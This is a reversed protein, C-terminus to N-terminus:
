WHGKDNGLRNFHKILEFVPTVLTLNQWVHEADSSTVMHVEGKISSLTSNYKQYIM